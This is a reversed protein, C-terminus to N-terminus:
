CLIDGVIAPPWQNWLYFVRNLLSLTGESNAMCNNMTTLLSFQVWIQMLFVISPETHLSLTAEIRDKLSYLYICLPFANLIAPGCCVMRSEPRVFNSSYSTDRVLSPVWVPEFYELIPRVYTTYIITCNNSEFLYFSRGLLYVSRKAWHTFTDLGPSTRCFWWRLTVFSTTM